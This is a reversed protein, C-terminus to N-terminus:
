RRHAPTENAELEMLPVQQHSVGDVEYRETQQKKTPDDAYPAPLEAKIAGPNSPNAEPEPGAGSSRASLLHQENRQARKRRFFFFMGAAAIAIAGAGGIVGGAIAGTNSSSSSQTETPTPTPTSEGTTTTPKGTTTTPKTTGGTTTSKPTQTQVDLVPDCREVSTTTSCRTSATELRPLPLLTSFNAYTFKIQLDTAAPVSSMCRVETYAGPYTFTACLPSETGCITNMRNNQCASDCTTTAPICKTRFPACGQDGCCGIANVSKNANIICTGQVPCAWPQAIDGGQWGCLGTALAPAVTTARIVVDREVISPPPNERTTTQRPLSPSGGVVELGLTATLVLICYKRMM